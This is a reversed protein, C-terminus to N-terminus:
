MWVKTRRCINCEQALRSSIHTILSLRQSDSTTCAKFSLRISVDVIKRGSEIVCEREYQQGVGANAYQVADIYLIMRAVGFNTWHDIGVQNLLKETEGVRIRGCPVFSIM